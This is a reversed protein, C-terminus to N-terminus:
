QPASCMGDPSIETMKPRDGSTVPTNAANHSLSRVSVGIRM